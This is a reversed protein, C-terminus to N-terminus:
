TFVLGAAALVAVVGLVVMAAALGVLLWMLAFVLVPPVLVAAAIFPSELSTAFASRAAVRELKRSAM